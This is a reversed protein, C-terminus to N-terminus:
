VRGAAVRSRLFDVIEELGAARSAKVLVVDEAKLIQLLDRKAEAKTRFSHVQAANMGSAVAEDAALSALDGIAVLVEIGTRALRAGVERHLQDAAGGLEFMDGMVFVRRAGRTGALVELAAAVSDPNANYTDDVLTMGGCAEAKMRLNKYRPLAEAADGPTIGFLSVAAIAALANYVNHIGPAELGVPVGKISFWARGGENPRVDSARFDAGSSVGFTITDAGTAKVAAMLLPDDANVVAKGGPLLGRALESKEAAVAELSGFLGIHARGVNTVVGVQPRAIRCLSAIEGPHNSGLEVVLMRDDPELALISLPLGIHNNFSAPSRRVRMRVGALHAIMEKTTTKGNSGTVAVVPVDIGARVEAALQQLAALVSPVVLQPFRQPLGEVPREVVAAVAGKEWAEKVFQHGDRAEGRLAFFMEGAQLLRTDIAYGAAVGSGADWTYRAGITQAIQELDLRPM